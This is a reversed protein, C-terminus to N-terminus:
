ITRAECVQLGLRELTEKKSIGEESRGRLKYYKSLMKDLEVVSSEFPESLFREPLEDDKRSFGERVNFCRELNVIREGCDMVAKETFRDGTLARLADAFDSPIFVYTEATSFKRIGLADNIAYCNETFAVMDPKYAPNKTDM